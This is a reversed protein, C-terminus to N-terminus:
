EQSKILAPLIGMGGCHKWCELNQETDQGDVPSVKDTSLSVTDHELRSQDSQHCDEHEFYVFTNPRIVRIVM